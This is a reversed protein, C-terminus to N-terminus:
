VVWYWFFFSILFHASSRFLCKELSFYPHGVPVHSFAWCWWDDSIHLDFYHCLVECRDLHSDGVLICIVFTLIHLFAFDLVSNTPDYIPSAVISFLISNRLFSFICSGYSGAITSSPIHGFFFICAGWHEYCCWKCYGLYPLLTLHGTLSSHIFLVHSIIYVYIYWIYVCM